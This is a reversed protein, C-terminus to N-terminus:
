LLDRLAQRLARKARHFHIKATNEPVGLAAGMEAFTLDTTYRLAVVERYRPPLRAIAAALLQQLDAREALEEPLPGPDAVQDATAGSSGAQDAADDTSLSVTRRQRLMDICRNRVARFLWPRIPRSLDLSPLSLYLQVFGQQAADAADDYSGLLRYAFNFAARQYLEVLGAFAAEDGEAARRALADDPPRAAGIAREVQLV